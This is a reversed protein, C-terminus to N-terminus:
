SDIEVSNQNSSPQANKMIRRARERYSDQCESSSKKKLAERADNALTDVDSFYINKRQPVKSDMSQLRSRLALIRRRLLDDAGIYSELLEDHERQERDSLEDSFSKSQSSDNSRKRRLHDLANVPPVILM